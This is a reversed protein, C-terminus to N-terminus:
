CFETEQSWDVTRAVGWQPVAVQAKHRDGPGLSLRGATGKQKIM